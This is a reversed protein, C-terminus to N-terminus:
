REYFIKDLLGTFDKPPYINAGNPGVITGGMIMSMFNPQAGFIKPPPITPAFPTKKWQDNWALNSGESQKQHGIWESQSYIPPNTIITGQAQDYPFDSSLNQHSQLSEQEIEELTKAGVLNTMSIQQTTSFKSTGPTPIVPHTEVKIGNLNSM